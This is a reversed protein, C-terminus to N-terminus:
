LSVFFLFRLFLIFLFVATINTKNVDTIRAPAGSDKALGCYKVASVATYPSPEHPVQWTFGLPPPGRLEYPVNNSFWGSWAASGPAARVAIPDGDEDVAVGSMVGAAVIGGAVVSIGVAVSVIGGGGVSVGNSVTVEGTIVTVAVPVGAVGPNPITNDRTPNNAIIRRAFRCSLHNITVM